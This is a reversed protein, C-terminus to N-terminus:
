KWKNNGAICVPSFIESYLYYSVEDDNMTVSKQCCHSATKESCLTTNLGRRVTGLFQLIKSPTVQSQSCNPETVTM